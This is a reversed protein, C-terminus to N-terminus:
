SEDIDSSFEYYSDKSPVNKSYTGPGRRRFREIEFVGGHLILFKNRKVRDSDLEDGKLLSLYNESIKKKTDFEALNVRDPNFKFIKPYNRSKNLTMSKLSRPKDKPESQDQKTVKTRTGSSAPRPPRRLPRRGGPVSRVTSRAGGGPLGDPFAERVYDPFQFPPEQTTTKSIRFIEGFEPFYPMGPYSDYFNGYESFTDYPGVDSSYFNTSELADDTRANLSNKSSSNLTHDSKDAHNKKEVISLSKCTTLIFILIGFCRIM